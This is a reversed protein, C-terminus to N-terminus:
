PMEFIELAGVTSNDVGFKRIPTQSTAKFEVHGDKQMVLDGVYVDDFAM